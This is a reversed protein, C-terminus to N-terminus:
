IPAKTIVKKSLKKVAVMAGSFNSQCRVTHSLHQEVFGFATISFQFVPLSSIELLFSVSSAVFVLLVREHAM